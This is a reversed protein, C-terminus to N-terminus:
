KGGEARLAAEKEAIRRDLEVIDCTLLRTDIIQTAEGEILRANQIAYTAIGASQYPSCNDTNLANDSHVDALLWQKGAIGKKIHEVETQSVNENRIIARVTNPALGVEKAIELTGKGAQKAAVVACRMLHSVENGSYALLSGKPPKLAPLVEPTVATQPM